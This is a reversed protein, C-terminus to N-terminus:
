SQAQHNTSAAPISGSGNEAEVELLRVANLLRKTVQGMEIGKRGSNRSALKMIAGATRSSQTGHVIFGDLFEHIELTETNILRM